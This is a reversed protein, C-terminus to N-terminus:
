RYLAVSRAPDPRYRNTVLSGIVERVHAVDATGPRRGMGVESMDDTVPEGGRQGVPM